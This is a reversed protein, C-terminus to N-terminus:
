LFYIVFILKTSYYHFYLFLILPLIPLNSKHTCFQKKCTTYTNNISESTLPRDAREFSMIIIWSGGEKNNLWMLYWLGSTVMELSKSTQYLTPNLSMRPVCWPIIKKQNVYIKFQDKWKINLHKSKEVRSYVQIYLSQPIPSWPEPFAVSAIM